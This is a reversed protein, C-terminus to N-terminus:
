YVTSRFMDSNRCMTENDTEKGFAVCVNCVNSANDLTSEESARRFEKGLV